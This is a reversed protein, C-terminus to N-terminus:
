KAITLKRMPNAIANTATKKLTGMIEFKNPAWYVPAISINSNVAIEVIGQHTVTAKTCARRPLWSLCTEITRAMPVILEMNHAYKNAEVKSIRMVM